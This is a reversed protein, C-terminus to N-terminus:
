SISWAGAGRDILNSAGGLILSLAFCFLRHARLQLSYVILM